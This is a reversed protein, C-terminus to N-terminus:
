SGTLHDSQCSSAILPETIMESWVSYGHLAVYTPTIVRLLAPFEM